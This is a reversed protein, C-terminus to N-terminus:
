WNSAPTLLTGGIAQRFSGENNLFMEVEDIIGGKNLRAIVRGEIPDVDTIQGLYVPDDIGLTHYGNADKFAAKGGVISILETNSDELDVYGETNPPINSLIGPYFPNIAPSDDPLIDKPVPPLDSSWGQPLADGELLDAFLDEPASVGETGSFYANLSMRFSVMIQMETKGTKRDETILDIEDLTLNNIRYFNRNNEIDWVFGYLSSFYGRGEVNYSHYSFDPDIKTGSATVDFNKFGAQTLRNLYGIVKPSKLEEPIIKYRAFWRRTADKASAESRTEQLFLEDLEAKKLRAVKEARIAQELDTNKASLIYYGIGATIAWLAAMVLVSYGIKSM